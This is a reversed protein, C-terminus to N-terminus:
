ARRRHPVAPHGTLHRSHLRNIILIYHNISDPPSHTSHSYRATKYANAGYYSRPNDSKLRVMTPTSDSIHRLQTPTTRPRSPGGGSVFRARSIEWGKPSFDM